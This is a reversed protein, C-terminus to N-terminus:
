EGRVAVRQQIRQRCRDHRGFSAAARSALNYHATANTHDVALALTLTHRESTFDSLLDCENANALRVHVNNPELQMAKDLEATAARSDHRENLLAVYGLMADVWTPDLFLAKNFATAAGDLDGLRQLTLAWNYYLERSPAGLSVASKFLENAGPYDGRTMADIGQDVRVGLPTPAPGELSVGWVLKNGTGSVTGSALLAVGSERPKSEVAAQRAGRGSTSDTSATVNSRCARRSDADCTKRELPGARIRVASHSQRRGGTPDGSERAGRSGRSGRWGTTRGTASEGHARRHNARDVPATHRPAPSGARSGRGRRGGSRGSGCGQADARPSEVPCIANRRRHIPLFGELVQLEGGEPANRESRERQATKHAESIVSM